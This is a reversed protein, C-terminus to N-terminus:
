APVFSLTPGWGVTQRSGFLGISRTMDHMAPCRLEDSRNASRFLLFCRLPIPAPRYSSTRRSFAVRELEHHVTSPAGESSPPAEVLRLIRQHRCKLMPRYGYTTTSPSVARQARILFQVPASRVHRGFIRKRGGGLLLATPHLRVKRTAALLTQAWRWIWTRQLLRYRIMLTEARAMRGGHRSFLQM